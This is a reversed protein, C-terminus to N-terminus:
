RTGRMKAYELPAIGVKWANYTDPGFSIRAGHKAAAVSVHACWNSYSNQWPLDKPPAFPDPRPTPYPRDQMAAIAPNSARLKARLAQGERWAKEAVALGIKNEAYLRTWAKRDNDQGAIRLYTIAQARTM